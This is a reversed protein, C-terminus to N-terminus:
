EINEKCAIELGLECARALDKQAMEECDPCTKSRYYYAEAQHRTNLAIIADFDKRAQDYIPNVEQSVYKWYDWASAGLESKVEAYKLLVQGRLLLADLDKPKSTINKDLIELCQELIEAREYVDKTAKSEQFFQAAQQLPSKQLELQPSKEAMLFTTVPMASANMMPWPTILLVSGLILWLSQRSM